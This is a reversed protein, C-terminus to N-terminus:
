RITGKKANNSKPPTEVKVESERTYLRDFEEDANKGEKIWNLEKQRLEAHWKDADALEKAFESRLDDITLEAFQAKIDDPTQSKIQEATLLKKSSPNKLQGKLVEEAHELYAERVSEDKVTYSAKLFCRAALRKADKHNSTDCLLLDGLAELLLPNEHNAFRMMGLVAKIAAQRDNTSFPKTGQ